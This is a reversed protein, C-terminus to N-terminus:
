PPWSSSIAMQFSEGALINALQQLLVAPPEVSDASTVVNVLLEAVCRGNRDGNVAVARQLRARQVANQLLSAEGFLVYSATDSRSSAGPVPFVFAQLGTAPVVRHVSGAACRRTYVKKLLVSQGPM